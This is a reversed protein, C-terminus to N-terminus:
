FKFPFPPSSMVDSARGFLIERFDTQKISFIIMELAGSRYDALSVIGLLCSLDILVCSLVHLLIRM